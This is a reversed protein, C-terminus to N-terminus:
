LSFPTRFHFAQPTENLLLTKLPFFLRRMSPATTKAAPTKKLAHALQTQWPLYGNKHHGHQGPDEMIVPRPEARGLGAGESPQMEGHEQRENKKKIRRGGFGRLM